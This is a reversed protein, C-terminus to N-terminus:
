INTKHLLFQKRIVILDYPKYSLKYCFLTKGYVEKIM